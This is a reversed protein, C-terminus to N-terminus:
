ATMHPVTPDALHPQRLHHRPRPDFSLLTMRRREVPTTAITAAVSSISDPQPPLEDLLEDLGEDLEEALEDAVWVVPEVECNL